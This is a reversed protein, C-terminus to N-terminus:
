LVTKVNMFCLRRYIISKVFLSGMIFRTRPSIQGSFARCRKTNTYRPSDTHPDTHTKLTNTKLIDKSIGPSSDKTFDAM